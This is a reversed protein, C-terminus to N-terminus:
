FSAYKAEIVRQERIHQEYTLVKDEMKKDIAALDKAKAREVATRTAWYNRTEAAHYTDYPMWLFGGLVWLPITTVSLIPHGTYAYGAIPLIGLTGALAASKENVALGKEEYIELEAQQEPVLHSTCGITSISIALALALKKM